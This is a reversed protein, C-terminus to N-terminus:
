NLIRQKSSYYTHGEKDSGEIMVDWNKEKNVSYSHLESVKDNTLHDIILQQGVSPDVLIVKYNEVKPNVTFRVNFSIKDDITTSDVEYINLGMIRYENDSVLKYPYRLSVFNALSSGLDNHATIEYTLLTNYENNQPYDPYCTKTSLIRSLVKGSTDKKTIVYYDAGIVTDWSLQVFSESKGQGDFLTALFQEPMELKKVKEKKNYPIEPLQEHLGKAVIDALHMAGNKRFHTADDIGEHFNDYQGYPLKMYLSRGKFKGLKTLLQSGQLGLDICPINNEAAYNLLIQRYEDFSITAETENKFNYRQPPTILVPTAGRDLASQVYQEMYKMFDKPAVYRLPRISTADNDGWQILLYDGPLLTKNIQRLKGEVIYSKSSRGGISKNNIILDKSSYVRSWEFTSNEDHSIVANRNPFIYYYLVAGWGTQPYQEKDYTQVTSDSAIYMHPVSSKELKEEDLKLSLLEVKLRSEIKVSNIFTLEIKRESLYVKQSIEKTENGKLKVSDENLGNIVLTLSLPESSPNHVKYKLSYNSAKTKINLFTGELYRFNGVTLADGNLPGSDEEFGSVTFLVKGVKAEKKNVVAEREHYVGNVWGPSEKPYSKDYVLDAYTKNEFDFDLLM